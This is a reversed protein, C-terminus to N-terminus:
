VIYKYIRDWYRKATANFSHKEEVWERVRKKEAMLESDSLNILETLHKEVEEESNAIRMQPYCGYEKKYLEVSNSNTIPICGLAAAEFAVNGWEGYKLGKQATPALVDLIVDCVAMRRLSDTWIMVDLEKTIGIYELRDEPIKNVARVFSETGKNVSGTPFHGVVLRDGRKDYCPQIFETDVSFFILHENYAGLGLLDPMQIVTASLYKNLPKNIYDHFVRYYAGGHQMVIKKEKMNIGTNIFSSSIYHIIKANDAVKNLEPVLYPGYPKEGNLVRQISFHVCGQEPYMFEHYVGKLFMVDLGLRKLCQQTKWGTNANDSVALM